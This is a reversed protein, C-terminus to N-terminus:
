CILDIATLQRPEVFCREQFHMKSFTVGLVSQSVTLKEIMQETTWEIVQEIVQKM